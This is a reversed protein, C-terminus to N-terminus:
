DYGFTHVPTAPYHRTIGEPLTLEVRALVDAHYGELYTPAEPDSDETPIQGIYYCCEVGNSLDSLYQAWETAGTLETLYAKLEAETPASLKYTTM